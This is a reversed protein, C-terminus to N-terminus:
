TLILEIDGGLRSSVVRAKGSADREFTLDVTEEALRLSALRLQDLGDPLVPVDVRVQRNRGDIALGLSATLLGYCAASSWAQPSCADAYNVPSRGRKKTFGCFLEPLRNLRMYLSAEFLGTLMRAAAKHFGHRGMGLAVIATDHPWVSGNHYSLPSYRVEDASLTRLGWGTYM